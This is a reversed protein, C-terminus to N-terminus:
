VFRQLAEALARRELASRMPVALHSLVVGVRQVDEQGLGRASTGVVLLADVGPMRGVLVSRRSALPLGAIASRVVDTDQVIVVPAQPTVSQVAPHTDPVRLGFELPRLGVGAVPYWTADRERVLLAADTEVWGAVDDVVRQAVQQWTEAREYEDLVASALEEWGPRWRVPQAPAVQAGLQELVSVLETRTESRSETTHKSLDVRRGEAPVRTRVAHTVRVLGGALAAGTTRLRSAAVTRADDAGEDPGDETLQEHDQEDLEEEDSWDSASAGDDDGWRPRIEPVSLYGGQVVGPAPPHPPFVAPHPRRSLRLEQAPGAGDDAERTELADAVSGPEAQEDVDPALDVVQVDHADESPAVTLYGGQVVGRATPALRRVSLPPRRSLRQERRSGGDADGQDADGPDADGPDTNGPDTNGPDPHQDDPHQDDPHQDDSPPGDPHQDDSPPGDPHQGDPDDPAERPIEAGRDVPAEPGAPRHTRAALAAAQLSAVAAAVDGAHVPARVVRLRPGGEDDFTGSVATGDDVLLVVDALRDELARGVADSWTGSALADVVVCGPQSLVHELNEPAVRVADLGVVQLDVARRTSRSVLTVTQDRLDITTV